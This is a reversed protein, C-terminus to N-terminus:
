DILRLSVNSINSKFNTTQPLARTDFVLWFKLSTNKLCTAPTVGFNAISVSRAPESPMHYGLRLLSNSLPTRDSYLYMSYAAYFLEKIGFKILVPLDNRDRFPNWLLTGIQFPMLISKLSELFPEPICSCCSDSNHATFTQIPDFDNLQNLSPCCGM